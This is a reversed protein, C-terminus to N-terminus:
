DWRFLQRQIFECTLLRHIEVTYNCRGRVHEQIMEQIGSSAIYSRSLAAPDLLADKLFGSLENKYWIRFHHWKHRGLYLRELHLPQLPRDIKALWQPMGHDYAYEAKFTFEQWLHRLRGLVPISNLALGRDTGIKLLSPQAEAVMRLSVDNVLCEPPTQYALAVLENDMYPTRITVQSRELSLRAHIHWPTQKFATFSLRHGRLESASRDV